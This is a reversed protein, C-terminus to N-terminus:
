TGPTNGVKPAVAVQATSKIGLTQRFENMYASSKVLDQKRSNKAYARSLVFCELTYQYSDTLNIDQQLYNIPPPVAGYLIEVSGSGDNPPTVHFRRPDRPDACWHQVDTEQTGARWFRNENDLLGKDVLTVVKKSAENDNVDLIAVGDVPLSQQTGTALEVYERLPYADPKLFVTNREAETLYGRLEDDSWTVKAVDILTVRCADVIVSALM